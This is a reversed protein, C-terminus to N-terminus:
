RCAALAYLPMQGSRCGYWNQTNGDWNVTLVDAGANYALLTLQQYSGYSYRLYLGGSQLAGYVFTFYNSQTPPLGGIRMYDKRWGYPLAQSGPDFFWVTGFTPSYWTGSGAADIPAMAPLGGRRASAVPPRDLRTVDAVAVALAPGTARTEGTQERPAALLAAGLAAVALLRSARLM